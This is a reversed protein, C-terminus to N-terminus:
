TYNVFYAFIFYTMVKQMTQYNEFIFQQRSNNNTKEAKLKKKKQKKIVKIKNYLRMFHVFYSVQAIHFRHLICLNWTKYMEEYQSLLNSSDCRNTNFLEKKLM